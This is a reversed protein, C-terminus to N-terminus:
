GLNLLGLEAAVCRPIVLSGHDGPKQVASERLVFYRPVAFRRTGVCCTLVARDDYLVESLAEVAELAVPDDLEM